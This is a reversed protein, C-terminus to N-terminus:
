CTPSYLPTVDSVDYNGRLSLDYSYQLTLWSEASRGFCKELRLAMEISLDSKKNILRSISSESVCLAKALSASTLNLEDLYVAKLFEGPHLKEM